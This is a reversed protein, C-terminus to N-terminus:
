VHGTQAPEVHGVRQSREVDTHSEIAGVPEPPHHFPDARHAPEPCGHGRDSGPRRAPLVLPSPGPARARPDRALPDLRERHSRRASFVTRAARERPRSRSRGGHDPRRTGGTVPPPPRPLPRGGSREPCTSRSAPGRAYPRHQASRRRGHGAPAQGQGMDDAAVTRTVEFDKAVPLLTPAYRTAALWASRIEEFVEQTERSSSCSFTATTGGFVPQSPVLTYGQNCRWGAGSLSVEPQAVAVLM